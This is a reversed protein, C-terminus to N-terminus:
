LEPMMLKEMMEMCGPSIPEAMGKDYDGVCLFHKMAERSMRVMRGSRYHKLEFDGDDKAIVYAKGKEVPTKRVTHKGVFLVSEDPTMRGLRELFDCWLPLPVPENDVGHIHIAKVTEGDDTVVELQMNMLYSKKGEEM